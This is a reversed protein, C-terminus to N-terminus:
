SGAVRRPLTSADSRPGSRPGTPSAEPSGPRRAAAPLAAAYSVVAAIESPTLKRSIELMVGDPDSRRQGRKWTELQHALYPAPQGALPPNAPGIGRGDVGHCSACSPLDREPDGRSYIAPAPMPQGPALTVPLRAYYQSVAIRQSGTLQKAIWRMSPNERRGDAYAELQHDLYGPDLGALRPIGSGSGMGDLGHCTFCANSAGAGAGSMAILEGSTGFRDPAAEASCAALIMAPALAFLQTLRAVEESGRAARM